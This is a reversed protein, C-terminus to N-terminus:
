ADAAAASALHNERSIPYAVAFLLSVALLVSPIVSIFLRIATLAEAPQTPIPEAATPTVYGSYELAQAMVWLALATGTKQFFSVIAYYSAERRAGTERADWQIVDPIMSWPTVYATAIGLGLLASLVLVVASRGAPMAGIALLVPIMTTFGVLVASRKERSRAILVTVPIFLLAVGQAILVYYNAQEPVGLNYRAFYVLDAAVISVATWSALYIGMVLWFPRNRLVYRVGDLVPPQEGGGPVDHSRTVRLVILPPVIIIAGVAIGLLRFVTGEDDIVWQLVTGIIIALLSGAISYFMRVGHLSSQEDYDSTLQPTLSNYAIHVVTFATDFVVYVVTFYVVLATPSWSPVLWMLMFSVGVPVAGAALLVRRRGFKSTVRDALIGVIPDNVADWLKGLLIPLAALAPTLRAVDTLFFLQFFSILALPASTTLDGAGYLWKM